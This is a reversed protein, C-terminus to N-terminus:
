KPSGLLPMLAGIGSCIMQPISTICNGCTSIVGTFCAGLTAIWDVAFGVLGCGAASVVSPVCLSCVNFPGLVLASGGCGLLAGIIATADENECLKDLIHKM